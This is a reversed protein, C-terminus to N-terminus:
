ALQQVFHVIRQRRLLEIQGRFLACRDILQGRQQLTVKSLNCLVAPPGSLM